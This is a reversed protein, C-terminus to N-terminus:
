PKLESVRYGAIAVAILAIGSWQWADPRVGFWLLDVMRAVAPYIFSLMVIPVPLCNHASALRWQSASLREGWSGPIDALGYADHAGIEPMFQLWGQPFRAM